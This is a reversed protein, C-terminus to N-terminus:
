SVLLCWNISATAATFYVDIVKLDATNSWNPGQQYGHQLQRAFQGQGQRASTSLSPMNGRFSHTTDLWWNYVAKWLHNLPSLSARSASMFPMLETSTSSNKLTMSDTLKRVRSEGGQHTGFTLRIVFVKVDRYELVAFNSRNSQQLLLYVEQIGQVWPPSSFLFPKTRWYHRTRLHRGLINCLSVRQRSLKDFMQLSLFSWFDLWFPLVQIFCTEDSVQLSCSNIWYAHQQASRECGFMRGNSPM